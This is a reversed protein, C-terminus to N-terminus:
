IIYKFIFGKSTKFAGRLCGVASSGWKRKADNVKDFVELLQGDLSYRGVKRVRGSKNELKELKELKEFSWRFGYSSHGQIISNVINCNKVKLYEKVEKKNKFERIFNGNLDYQYIKLDKFSRNKPIQIKSNKKFSAYWKQRVKYMGKIASLIKRPTDDVFKACDSISNFEQQYDGNLDYLYVKRKNENIHFNDLNLLNAKESSWFFGNSQTKDLVARGISSDSCKFYKSAERISQWEKVFSGDLNYQYILKSGTPPDGGGLTINYTDNRNIFEKTVLWRELDLADQRNDFIMLTERKFKEIGHKAVAFHFPEKPNRLLYLDNTWLGNGLYGDFIEPVETQHVGIYIKNNDLNITKYVIHKM